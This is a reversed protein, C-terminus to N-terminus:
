VNEVTNEYERMDIFENKCPTIIHANTKGCTKVVGLIENNILEEKTILKSEGKYNVILFQKSSGCGISGVCVARGEKIANDNEDIVPLLNTNYNNRDLQIYQVEVMNEHKIRYELREHMRLGIINEGGTRYTERINDYGRKEVRRKQFDYLLVGAPKEEGQPKIIAVIYKKNQVISNKGKKKKLIKFYINM